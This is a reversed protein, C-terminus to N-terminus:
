SAVGKEGATSNSTPIQVLIEPLVLVVLMGLAWYILPSLPLGSILTEVGSAFWFTAMSLQLTGLRVAADRSYRRRHLHQMLTVGLAILFAMAYQDVESLGTGNAVRISRLLGFEDGSFEVFSRVMVALIPPIGVVWPLWRTYPRAMTALLPAVIAVLVPIAYPNM